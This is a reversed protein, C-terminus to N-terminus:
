LLWIGKCPYATTIKGNKTHIEVDLKETASPLSFEEICVTTQASMDPKCSSYLSQVTTVVDATSLSTPWFSTPRPGKKVWENGNLVNITNYEAYDKDSNPAKVLDTAKACVPDTGGPHSHFGTAKGKVIQGCFIHIMNVQPSSDSYTDGGIPSDKDCQFNKPDVAETLTFFVMCPQVRLVSSDENNCTLQSYWFLPVYNSTATCAYVVIM